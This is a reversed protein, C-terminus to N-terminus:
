ALPARRQIFYTLSGHASNGPDSCARLVLTDDGRKVPEGVHHRLRKGVSKATVIQSHTANPYLFDRLTECRRREVDTTFESRDNVMGAVDAALFRSAMPWKDALADLADTLSANEEDDEEQTLFM